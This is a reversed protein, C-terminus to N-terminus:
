QGCTLDDDEEDIDDTFLLDLVGIIVVDDLSEIDTGCSGVGGEDSAEV